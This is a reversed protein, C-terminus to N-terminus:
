EEEDSGFSVIQGGMKKQLSRVDDTNIVWNEGTLWEGGAAGFISDKTDAIRQQVADHTLYVSLVTSTGCDGSQAAGLVQNSEDWEECDGGAKIFADRLANIDDYSGGSKEPGCGVLFLTLVALASIFPKRM